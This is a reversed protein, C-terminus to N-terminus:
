LLTKPSHVSLIIDFSSSVTLEIQLIMRADVIGLREVAHFLHNGARQHIGVLFVPVIHREVEVALMDPFLLQLQPRYSGVRVYLGVEVDGGVFLHQEVKRLRLLCGEGDADTHVALLHEALVVLHHELGVVVIQVDVVAFSRLLHGLLGDPLALQEVERQAVVEDVALQSSADDGEDGEADVLQLVVEMGALVVDDVGIGFLGDQGGGVTHVVRALLGGVEALLHHLLYLLPSVEDGVVVLLVQLVCQLEDEAGRAVREFLVAGVREEEHEAHQLPELALAARQGAEGRHHQHGYVDDTLRAVVIHQACAVLLRDDVRGQEFEQLLLEGDVQTHQLGEGHVLAAYVDDLDEVGHSMGDLVHFAPLHHFLGLQAQEREVLEDHPVVQVVIRLLQLLVDHHFREHFTKDLQFIHLIDDIRSLYVLCALRLVEADGDVDVRRLEFGDDLRTPSLAEDEVARGSRSLRLGDGVHYGVGQILTLAHQEDGLLHRGELHHLFAQVLYSQSGEAQLQVRVFHGLAVEESLHLLREVHHVGLLRGVVLLGGLPEKGVALLEHGIDLREVPLLRRLQREVVADSVAQRDLALLQLATQRSGVFHCLGVDCSPRFRYFAQFRHEAHCAMRCPMREVSEIGLIARRCMQLEHHFGDIGIAFVVFLSLTGALCQGEAYLHGIGVQFPHALHRLCQAMQGTAVRLLKHAQIGVVHFVLPLQRPLLPEQGAEEGLAAEHLRDPLIGRRGDEVLHWLEQCALAFVYGQQFVETQAAFGVVVLHLLGEELRHCGVPQGIHHLPAVVEVPPEVGQQLEGVRLCLAFSPEGLHVLLRRCPEGVLCAQFVPTEPYFLALLQESVPECGNDFGEFLVSLLRGLHAIGQHLCEAMLLGHVDYLVVGHQCLEVPEDEFVKHLFVFLGGIGELVQALFLEVARQRGLHRRLSQCCRAVRLHADELAVDGVTSSAHADSLDDVLYGGQQRLQTGAHQHTRDAHRLIDVHVALLEVEDDEVLSRLHRGALGDTGYGTALGEDTHAVRLLHRGGAEKGRLLYVLVLRLYVVHVADQVVTDREGHGSVVEGPVVARLMLREDGEAVLLIVLTLQAGEGASVVALRLHPEYADLSGVVLSVCAGVGCFGLGDNFLHYSTEFVGHQALEADADDTEALHLLVQYFINEDVFQSLPRFEFLQRHVHLLADEDLVELIHLAVLAIDDEEGYAVTRIDVPPHRHVESREVVLTALPTEVHSDATCAVLHNDKCRESGFLYVHVARLCLTHFSQFM